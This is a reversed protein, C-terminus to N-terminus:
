QIFDLLSVKNFGSKNRQEAQEFVTGWSIMKPVKTGTEDLSGVFVCMSGTVSRMAVAAKIEADIQKTVEDVVGYEPLPMFLAGEAAGHRKKHEIQILRTINSDLYNEQYYEMLEKDNMVTLEKEIFGLELTDTIATAPTVEKIYSEKITKLTVVIHDLASVNTNKIEVKLAEKQVRSYNLALIGQSQQYHTLCYKALKSNIAKIMADYDQTIATVQNVFKEKTEATVERLKM